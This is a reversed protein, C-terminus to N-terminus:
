VHIGGSAEIRQGNIWGSREDLLMTIAGGIDDPLGVRGLPTQGAIMQNVAANDRVMGGGFDTEIAGPALTNVAIRRAGLEVALYRTMVELAGKMMAYASFGAMSFRALGSSINLIRGGDAILPLLAQTLLFPGKVHIAFMEDLQAPSTQAFPAYTGVGANNVLAYLRAGGFRRALVDEVQAVFGPVAGADGVDLRLAVATRGLAAVEACLSQADAENHRYTVIVDDGGRALHLAANRGLGRSGGTVLVIRPQTSM